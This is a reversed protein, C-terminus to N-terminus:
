GSLIFTLADHFFPTYMPVHGLNYTLYTSKFLSYKRAAVTDYLPTVSALNGQADAGFAAIVPLGSAANAAFMAAEGQTVLEPQQWFSADACIYAHFRRNAPSEKFLAYGVFLGGSSHGSLIRKTPDVRYHSEIYPALQDVIFSYYLDAGPELLDVQRQPPTPNSLGVLTVHFGNGQVIQVLTTLMTEADSFYVVPPPPGSQAGPPEYVWVPYVVGNSQAQISLSVATPLTPSNSGGGGSPSSTGDGGGGGGCGPLWAAGLALKLLTRRRALSIM